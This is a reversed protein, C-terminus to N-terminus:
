LGGGGGINKIISLYTFAGEWRGCHWVKTQLDKRIAFWRPEKLKNNNIRQVEKRQNYPTVAAAPALFM